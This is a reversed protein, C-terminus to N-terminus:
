NRAFARGARLAPGITRGFRGGEEKQGSHGVFSAWRRASSRDSPSGRLSAPRVGGPLLPYLLRLRWGPLMRAATPAQSRRSPWPHLSSFRPPWGNFMGSKLQANVVIRSPRKGDARVQPGGPASPSPLARARPWRPDRSGDGTCVSGWRGRQDARISGHAAFPCCGKSTSERRFRVPSGMRLM